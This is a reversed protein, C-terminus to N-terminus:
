NLYSNNGTESAIESKDYRCWIFVGNLLNMKTDKKIQCLRSVM